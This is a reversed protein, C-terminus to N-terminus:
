SDAFDVHLTNSIGHELDSEAQVVVTQFVDELGIQSVAWDSIIEKPAQSEMVRFITSIPTSNGLLFEITGHFDGAITASPFHQQIFNVVQTRIASDALSSSASSLSLPADRSSEANKAQSTQAYNLKLRVGEGFLSKLHQQNGLCRLKGHALIGIRNCLLEAEDMSHTTLIIARGKKARRIISWIQRRSAADLGTTPEDLFVIKSDGVLSIAISLRRRMGGSLADARKNAAKALGVEAILKDVHDVEHSTDVGKLRAYFLLHEKVTLDSWLLDFQPCLGMSLHVQDIETRIDFGGVLATGDSPKFMGTLMSLTTSKGAGNEGLLGFCENRDVALYLGKV